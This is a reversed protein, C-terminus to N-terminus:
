TLLQFGLKRVLPESDESPEILAFRRGRRHAEALRVALLAGYLGRRRHREVTSGGYLTVFQSNPHFTIWGVAAPEGDVEAVYVSLCGPEAMQAALRPPLWSFDGGWVQEEVAAVATLEAPESLRRLRVAPEPAARDAPAAEIPLVLVPDPTDAVFGHAALRDALGPWPDHDYLRWSFPQGRQRLEAVQAAIVADATAPELRSHTVINMGPPPRLLRVVPGAAEVSAGPVVLNIRQERDYLDRVHSLDM